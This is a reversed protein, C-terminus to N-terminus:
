RNLKNKILNENIAAYNEIYRNIYVEKNPIKKNMQKELSEFVRRIVEPSLIVFMSNFIDYYEEENALFSALEQMNKSISPVNKVSIKEFHYNDKRNNYTYRVRGKEYFCDSNELIYVNSINKDKIYIGIDSSERSPNLVLIDFLYIKVLQEMLFKVHLPFTNELTTQIKILSKENIGIDSLTYFEDKQFNNRYFYYDKGDINVLEYHVCKMDVISALREIVMEMGDDVVEKFYYEVGDKKLIGHRNNLVYKKEDLHLRM